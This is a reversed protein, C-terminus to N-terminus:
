KGVRQLFDKDLRKITVLYHETDSKNADYALSEKMAAQAALKNKVEERVKQAKSRAMKLYESRDMNKGHLM